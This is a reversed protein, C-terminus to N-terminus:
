LPWKPGVKLPSIEFDLPKLSSGFANGLDRSHRTDHLNMYISETEDTFDINVLIRLRFEGLTLEGWFFKTVVYAYHM